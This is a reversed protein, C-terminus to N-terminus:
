VWDTMYEKNAECLENLMKEMEPLTLVAGTLPDTQLAQLLLGRDKKLVAEVALEYLFCHPTMVAALQPPIKGVYCPKIADKAVLCPVEVISDPPLNTILGTNAVNGYIEM